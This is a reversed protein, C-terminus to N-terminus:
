KINLIGMALQVHGGTIKHLTIKLNTSCFKNEVVAVHICMPVKNTIDNHYVM